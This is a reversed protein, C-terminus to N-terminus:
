KTKPGTGKIASNMNKQALRRAIAVLLIVGMFAALPTITNWITDATIAGSIATMFGAFGGTETM